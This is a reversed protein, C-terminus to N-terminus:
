LTHEMESRVTASVTRLVDIQNRLYRVYEVSARHRVQALELDLKEDTTQLVAKAKRVENSGDSQLFVSYYASEFRGKAKSVQEDYERLEDLVQRLTDGNAILAHAIENPTKM